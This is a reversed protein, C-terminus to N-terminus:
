KREPPFEVIRWYMDLLNVLNIFGEGIKNKVMYGAVNLDYSATKDEDSNSTTLVFVISDKLIPDARLKKLFEAGNMRPLSLDLLILYPREIKGTRLTELGERGDKATIILNAVKKEQFAREVAEVDVKNDEILLVNVTNGSM